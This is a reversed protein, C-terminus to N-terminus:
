AAGLLPATGRKLEFQEKEIRGHVLSDSIQPGVSHFGCKLLVKASAPNCIRVQAQILRAPTLFFAQDILAGVAESMLGNNWHDPSMHYGLGLRNGPLADMGIQGIAHDPRDKITMVLRLIKGAKNMDHTQRIRRAVEEVSVGANWSATMKAVDPHGAFDAIAQADSLQPWRLWLRPTEIRFVDDQTLEPFM